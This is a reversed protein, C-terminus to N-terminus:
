EAQEVIRLVGIRYYSDIVHFQRDVLSDDACLAHVELHGEFRLKRLAAGSYNLKAMATASSM